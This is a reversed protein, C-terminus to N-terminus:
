AGNPVGFVFLSRQDFKPTYPFEVNVNGNESTLDVYYVGGIPSNKADGGSTDPVRVYPYSSITHVVGNIEITIADGPASDTPHVNVFVLAGELYAGDFTVTVDSTDTTHAEGMFQLYSSGLSGGQHLIESTTHYQNPLTDAERAGLVLLYRNDFAPDSPLSITKKGTKSSVDIAYLGTLPSNVTNSNRVSFCPSWPQLEDIKQGNYKLCLTKGGAQADGDGDIPRVAVFAFLWDLGGVNVDVSLEGYGSIQKEALYVVAPLSQTPNNPDQIQSIPHHQQSAVSHVSILAAITVILFLVLIRM